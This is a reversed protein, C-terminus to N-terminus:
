PCPRPPAWPALALTEECKWTAFQAEKGKWGVSVALVLPSEDFALPALKVTLTVEEGPCALMALVLSTSGIASGARRVVIWFAQRAAM